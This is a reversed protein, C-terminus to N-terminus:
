DKRTNEKSSTRENLNRELALGGTRVADGLGRTKRRGSGARAFGVSKFGHANNKKV